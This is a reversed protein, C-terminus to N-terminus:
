DSMWYKKQACQKKSKKVVDPILTVKSNQM